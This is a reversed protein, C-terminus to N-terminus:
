NKLNNYCNYHTYDSQYLTYNLNPLSNQKLYNFEFQLADNFKYSANAEITSITQNSIAQSVLLKATINKPKM